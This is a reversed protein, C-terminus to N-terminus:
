SQDSDYTAYIGQKVQEPNAMLLLRSHLADKEKTATPPVLAGRIRAAIGFARKKFSEPKINSNLNSDTLRLQDLIEQATSSLLRNELADGVNIMRVAMDALRTPNEKEILTKLELLDNVLNKGDIIERLKEATKGQHIRLLYVAREMAMFARLPHGEPLSAVLEQWMTESKEILEKAQEAPYMAAATALINAMDRWFEILLNPKDDTRDKVAEELKLAFDQNQYVPDIASDVAKSILNEKESYSFTRKAASDAASVILRVLGAFIVVTEHDLNAVFEKKQQENLVPRDESVGTIADVHSKTVALAAAFNGTQRLTIETDDLIGQLEQATRM